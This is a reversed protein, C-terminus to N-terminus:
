ELRRTFFFGAISLTCCAIILLPWTHVWVESFGMDKLFIGKVSILVHKVPNIATAKQLWLPMNEIPAAYGSLTIAPVIFAFTGLIAQQQTMSISSICLGVGVVSSVFVLLTFVLLAFSGVFPIQFVVCGVGWIVIGESLGIIIAPVTKGILIEMPSLPSVLLQDFTGLERERAVSLSTVIMGILLTLIVVLSPVTFWIYLLNENYWNRGSITAKRQTGNSNKLSIAYDNLIETLYGSVIQSANSKRGDLLFQVSATKGAFIDRSFNQGIHVVAMVKQSDLVNQAERINQLFYIDKFTTSAVYRHVLERGYLGQDENIIALSVNKVELTVAFSFIVLQLIPPGILVARSKPDHLLTLIEKQILALIRFIM